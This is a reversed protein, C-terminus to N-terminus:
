HTSQLRYRTLDAFCVGRQSLFSKLVVRDIVRCPRRMVTVATAAADDACNPIMMMPNTTM